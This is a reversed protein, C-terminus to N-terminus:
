NARSQGLLEATDAIAVAVALGAGPSGQSSSNAVFLLFSREKTIGLTHRVHQGKPHSGTIGMGEPTLVACRRASGHGLVNM